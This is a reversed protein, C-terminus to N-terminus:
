HLFSLDEQYPLGARAGMKMVCKSAVLNGLCGCEHLSKGLLVGYLFGACFADGAGTSDVVKVKFPKITHREIGDTVYCGRGGLKVAIVRVGSEVLFDAGKRYDTEGTLATIESANPLLVDTKKIMSELEALGKKAYILGPDFSVKTDDPLVSLLKEQAQFSRGGVFSSLHLFRGQFAYDMNIDTSDILDNVGSDVYLAREGEGDVFGMVSGSRGESSHIVGNTDVEENHLDELLVEGEQDCGVKGIFGVKLGLRALGVITNAASGGCTEFHEIVFSEEEAKAIRNVKFLRDLNLAGFGIVDFRTM